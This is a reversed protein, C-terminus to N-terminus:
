HQWIYVQFLVLNAKISPEPDPFKKVTIQRNSETRGSGGVELVMEGRSNQRVEYRMSRVKHCQLDERM